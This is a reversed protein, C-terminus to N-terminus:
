QAPIPGIKGDPRWDAIAASVEAASVTEVVQMAELIPAALEASLGLGGSDAPATLAARIGPLSFDPLSSEPVGPQMFKLVRRVIPNGAAAVSEIRTLVQEGMLPDSSYLALLGLESLRLPRFSTPSIRTLAAAIDGDRGAEALQRLEASALISDRIEQPDM